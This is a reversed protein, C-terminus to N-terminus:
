ERLRKSASDVWGKVACRCRYLLLDLPPFYEADPWGPYQVPTVSHQGHQEERDPCGYLRRISGCDPITAAEDTIIKWIEQGITVREETTGRLGKTFFDLVEKAKPIPENLDATGNSSYWNGIAPGTGSTGDVPLAHFPYFIFNM